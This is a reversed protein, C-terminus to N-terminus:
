LSLRLLSMFFESNQRGLTRVVPREFTDANSQNNIGRFGLQQNKEGCLLVSSGVTHSDVVSRIHVSVHHLECVVAGIDVFTEAVVADVGTITHLAEPDKVLM